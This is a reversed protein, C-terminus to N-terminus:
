PAPPTPTWFTISLRPRAAANHYEASAIAYFVKPVDLAKIAVGYNSDPDALWERVLWTVNWEYWRLSETMTTIDRPNAERDGPVGNAGPLDWPRAASARLWNAEITSWAKQLRYLGAVAANSNTQTLVWVGLRADVVHANAPLTSLDFRILPVMVDPQRLALRDAEAYNAEVDWANLYTDLTGDYGDVGQQLTIVQPEPTPPPYIQLLTPLFSYYVLHTRTPTATPP